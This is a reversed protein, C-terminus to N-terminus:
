EPILICLLSTLCIKWWSNKFVMFNWFYARGHILGGFKYRLFGEMLNGRRIYAGGGGGRSPPRPAQVQFNGEFVFYSLAFVTFKRGVILSAWDIKFRLNGGMTLGRRFILGEFLAKFFILECSIKPIKRYKIHALAEFKVACNM